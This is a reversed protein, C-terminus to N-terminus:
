EAEPKREAAIVRAHGALDKTIRPPGFRGDAEVLRRVEAAIMPSFECFFCGGAVLREAAQPILRAIIETGKEGGVLAVRPEHERVGMELAAFEAESVYPPNSVIFDFKPEAPVVSLLDGELFEIREAVGHRTANARAVEMAAPSIDIATVHARPLHKAACVALIGSGTGVDAIRFEAERRGGAKAAELLGLVVFETEPRPILVAPNVQFPLSYFEREGVLYAVPIGQSRRKVLDRFATRIAEPPEEDFATYLDIRKSGRAHALLVEAELRPSEARHKALFETTWALLRRITWSEESM